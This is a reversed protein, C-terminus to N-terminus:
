ENVRHQVTSVALVRDVLVLMGLTLLGNVLLLEYGLQYGPIWVPLQSKILYTLVPSLLGIVPIWYARAGFAKKRYLSFLFMGLIPGYTYGAVTLLQDIVSSDALQEFVVIVVFLLASVAVHIARRLKKGEGKGARPKFFDVYVSTTLSTLASDASSYAAAILGLLFFVATITGLNGSLALSPFFADSKESADLVFAGSDAYLYMLAGFALFVLNVGILVAAFSLMNKQADRISRCSLNKQMMDQDMGTMTITILAGGLFQKWFYDRANYDEWNFIESYSSEGIAAVADGISFGMQQALQYFAVGIALLMFTTQLTDTWIITKIGGKNTYLWILVISFLAVVAFPIDYPALVLSHLVLCVLYLRFSAGLVRSFLFFAAGTKNGALGLKEQLLTYISTLNHKYYLPMLVYAIFLYGVFYGLVVQFYSFGSSGVWGPVSIFTVGSLSAGIMGFAVVYWPSNRDGVLFGAEGADKGTIRAIVLLVLFYLAILGLVWFANM